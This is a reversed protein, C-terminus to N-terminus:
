KADRLQANFLSKYISDRAMFKLHTGEEVLKGSEIVYIKDADIVSTFKHTVVITTKGKQLEAFSDNVQKETLADLASTAEDLILVPAPSLFARAIAIRQKQGGSLQSGEPGVPIDGREHMLGDVRALRAAQDVDEISASPNAYHINDRISKNFIVIDQAVVSFCNRISGLTFERTDKGNFMIQGDSIEYLRTILSLITTKGSGTSGVIATKAGSKFQLSMDKFVDTGDLYSFSIKNMSIDVTDEAFAMKGDENSKEGKTDMLVRISDLLILSAQLKAFFQSLGRAPDFIIVMGLIFTIISAGDMQFDDSLVMYGGGGIVLVFVFASSLDIGPLVLAQAKQLKISLDKIGASAEVMRSIETDEQNSMKITRIGGSMENISTMYAGFVKESATQIKKIKESVSKLIFFIIPLIVVAAVFLIASKYILYGSIIIITVVDRLANLTTQGVFASVGDVQNVLRLILEGPNTTDFFSQRLHIVKSILHSRLKFVADSALWVSLVPTIYSIAARMSFALIVFGCIKLLDWFAGDEFIVRLGKETFALFQQYVFGQIIILVMVFILWPLKDKMYHTWFWRINSRDKDSFFKAAM